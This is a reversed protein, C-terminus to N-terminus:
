VSQRVPRTTTPVRRLPLPVVRRLLEEEEEERVDRRGRRSDRMHTIGTAAALAARISPFAQRRRRADAGAEPWWPLPVVAVPTTRPEVAVPTTGAGVAPVESPACACATVTAPPVAAADVALDLGAVEAAAAAWWGAVVAADVHVANARLAALAMVTDADLRGVCLPAHGERAAMVTRTPVTKSELIAAATMAKADVAAPRVAPVPASSPPSGPPWQSTALPVATCRRQFDAFGDHDVDPVYRPPAPPHPPSASLSLSPDLGSDHSMHCPALTTRATPPMAAPVPAASAHLHMPAPALVPPAAGFPSQAPRHSADDGYQGNAHQAHAAGPVAAATPSWYTDARGQASVPVVQQYSQLLWAGWMQASQADVHCMLAAPPVSTVTHQMPGPSNYWYAAPCSLTPQPASPAPTVPAAAAPWPVFLSATALAERPFAAAHPHSM